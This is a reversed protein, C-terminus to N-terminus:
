PWPWKMGQRRVEAILNRLARQDSPTGSGIVISRSPDPPIFKPHGRKTCTVTWGQARAAKEIDRLNM